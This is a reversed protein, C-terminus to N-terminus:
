ASGVGTELAPSAKAAEVEEVEEAKECLPSLALHVIREIEDIGAYLYDKRVGPVDNMLKHFVPSLGGPYLRDDFFPRFRNFLHRSLLAAKAAGAHDKRYYMQSGMCDLAEGLRVVGKRLLEDDPETRGQQVWAAHSADNTTYQHPMRFRLLGARILDLNHNDENIWLELTRRTREFFAEDGLQGVTFDLIPASLSFDFTGPWQVCEGSEEETPIMTMREPSQGLSWVYFRPFTHYVRLRTTAKEVVCLFLPLPHEILWRIAEPGEFEWPEMNSKVQVTYPSKAWARQGVREMLTCHLDLGHDEQHPVAVATGWSTFAYQALYESRSGEHFNPSIAGPM